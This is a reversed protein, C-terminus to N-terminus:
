QQRQLREGLDRLGDIFVIDPQKAEIANKILRWREKIRHGISRVKPVERLWLVHFRPHHAKM